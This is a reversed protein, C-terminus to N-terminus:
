SQEDGKLEGRHVMTYHEWLEAFGGEDMGTVLGSRAHSLMASYARSRVKAPLVDWAGVVKPGWETVEDVHTFSQFADVMGKAEAIANDKAAQSPAQEAARAKEEDGWAYSAVPASIPAADANDAQTMEDATYVGSLENPFARRLALAEACKAIMTAGMKGWLGSPKGDYAQMYETFIAVSWMPGKFGKRLVGVKAAYPRGNGLWVDSWKGSEDCWFPGEQGEYENTRAAIVRFGDITAQISINARNNKRDLRKSAYIQRALPDLGTREAAHILMDLEHTEFDQYMAWLTARHADSMALTM